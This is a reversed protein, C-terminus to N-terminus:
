DFRSIEEEWLSKNYIILHFKHALDNPAMDGIVATFKVVDSNADEHTNIRDCLDIGFIRVHVKKEELELMKETDARLVRVLGGDGCGCDVVKISSDETKPLVTWITRLYSRHREESKNVLTHYETWLRSGEISWYRRLMLASYPPNVYQAYFASLAALNMRIANDPVPLSVLDPGSLTWKEDLLKRFVQLM